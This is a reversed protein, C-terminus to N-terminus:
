GHMVTIQCVIDVYNTRAGPDPNSDALAAPVKGLTFLLYSLMLDDRGPTSSYTIARPLLGLCQPLHLPCWLRPLDGFQDDSAGAESIGIVRFLLAATALALLVLYLSTSSAGSPENDICYSENIKSRLKNHREYAALPSTGASCHQSLVSDTRPTHITSAVCRVRALDLWLGWRGMLCAPVMRVASARPEGTWAVWCVYKGM